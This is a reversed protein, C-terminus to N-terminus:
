WYITMNGTINGYRNVNEVGVFFVGDYPVIWTKDISTVNYASLESFEKNTNGDFFVFDAKPIGEGSLEDFTGKIRLKTGETFNNKWFKYPYTANVKFSETIQPSIDSNDYENCGSLGVTVLILIIGITMLQTKM